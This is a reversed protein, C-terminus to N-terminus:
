KDRRKRKSAGTPAVTIGINADYLFIVGWYRSRQDLTDPIRITVDIGRTEGPQLTVEVFRVRADEFLIKYHSPDATPGDTSLPFPYAPAGVTQASAALAAVASCAALICAARAMRKM